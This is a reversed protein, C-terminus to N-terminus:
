GHKEGGIFDNIRKIAMAAYWSKDIMDITAIDKNDVLCNDPLNAISDKREKGKDIKLKYLKGQSKNKTAYVRNM